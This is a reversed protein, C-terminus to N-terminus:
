HQVAQVTITITKQTTSNSPNPATFRLDFNQTGGAAINSVLTQYVDATAFQTWNSGGNTSLEHVFTDTSSSSGLSWGAPADTKINLDEAVNGDNQATQTDSLTITSKSEGPGLTGYAITGDTTITVSVSVAVPEKWAAYRYTGGSTNVETQTGLRFGNSIFSKIRGAANATNLFYQTADGAM